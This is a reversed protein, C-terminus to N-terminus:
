TQTPTFCQATDNMVTVHHTSVHHCAKQTSTNELLEALNETSLFSIAFFSNLIIEKFTMSSEM